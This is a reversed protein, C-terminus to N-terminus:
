FQSLMLMTYYHYKDQLLQPKLGIVLPISLDCTKVKDRMWKLETEPFMNNESGAKAGIWLAENKKRNLCLGSIESFMDLAKLSTDFSRKHGDLILTTDDAYQSIIIEQGNVTIGKIESNKIAEALIEVCISLYLSLPCGQRVGRELQFFGSTWGNNLICSKTGNYFM